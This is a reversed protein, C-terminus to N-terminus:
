ILVDIEDSLSDFLAQERLEAHFASATIKVSVRDDYTFVTEYNEDWGETGFEERLENLTDTSEGLFEFPIAIIHTSTLPLRELADLPSLVHDDAYEGYIQVIDILNENSVQERIATKVLNFVEKANEHYSDAGCDYTGKTKMSFGHHSLFLSVNATIPLQNLEEQTKCVISEVYSPQLGMQKAIIVQVDSDMENLTEYIQEYWKLHGTFDSDVVMQPVAILVDVDQNILETTAASISGTEFGFASRCIVTEGYQEEILHIVNDVQPMTQDKYPSFNDMNQWSQYADLMAHEFIDAEGRGPGFFPLFYHSSTHMNENGPSFFAFLSVTEGWANILDRQWPFSWSEHNRDILITGKDINLLFSPIMGIDIMHTMFTKFDEYSSETLTTPEGYNIILIGITDISSSMQGDNRLPIFSLSLTSPLVFLCALFLSFIITCVQMLENTCKHKM